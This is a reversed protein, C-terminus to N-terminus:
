KKNEPTRANIQGAYGTNFRPRTVVKNTQESNAKARQPTGSGTNRLKGSHHSKSHDHGIKLAGQTKKNKGRLRNISDKIPIFFPRSLNALTDRIKIINDKIFNKKPPHSVILPIVEGGAVKKMQLLSTDFSKGSTYEINQPGDLNYRPNPNVTCISHKNDRGQIEVKADQGSEQVYTFHLDLQYADGQGNKFEIYSKKEEGNKTPLLKINYYIHEELAKILDKENISLSTGMEGLDQETVPIPYKHNIMASM